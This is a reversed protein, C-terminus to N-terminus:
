RFTDPARHMQAHSLRVAQRWESQAFAQRMQVGVREPASALKPAGHLSACFAPTSEAPIVNFFAPPYSGGAKEYRVTDRRSM